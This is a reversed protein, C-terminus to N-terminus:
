EPGWPGQKDIMEQWGKIEHRIRRWLGPWDFRSDFDWPKGNRSRDIPHVASHDNVHLPDAPINLGDCLFAILRAGTAYQEVTYSEGPRPALWDIGVSRTNPSRKGNPLPAWVPLDLVGPPYPYRLHWWQEHEPIDDCVDARYAALRKQKGGGTHHTRYKLPAFQFLLGTRGIMFTAKYTLISAMRRAYAGDITRADEGHRQDLRRLGVGYGTTHNIIGVITEADRVRDPSLDPDLRENWIARDPQVLDIKGELITM